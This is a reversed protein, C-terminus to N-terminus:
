GSSRRPCLEGMEPGGEELVMEVTGELEVFKAIGSLYKSLQTGKKQEPFNGRPLFASTKIREMHSIAVTKLLFFYDLNCDLLFFFYLLFGSQFQFM